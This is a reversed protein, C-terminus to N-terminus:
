LETAASSRHFGLESTAAGEEGGGEGLAPAAVM